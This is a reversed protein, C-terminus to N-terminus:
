IAKDCHTCYCFWILQKSGDRFIIRRCKRTKLDMEYLDMNYVDYIKNRLDPNGANLWAKQSVTDVHLPVITVGKIGPLDKERLVQFKETAPDFINLGDGTGIWIKGQGAPIITYILGNSLSDQVRRTEPM